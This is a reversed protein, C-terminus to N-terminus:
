LQSRVQIVARTYDIRWSFPLSDSVTPGGPKYWSVEGSVHSEFAFVVPVCLALLAQYFRQAYPFDGPPCICLSSNAMYGMREASTLSPRSPSIYHVKVPARGSAPARQYALMGSM